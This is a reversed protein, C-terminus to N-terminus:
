RSNGQVEQLFNVWFMLAEEELEWKNGGEPSLVPVFLDQVIDATLCQQHAVFLSRMTVPNTQLLELVNLTQLSEKIEDLEAKM